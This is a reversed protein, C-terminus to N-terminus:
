RGGHNSVIIGQVGAKVALLADEPHQIGKLVIPGDWHKKLIELHDWTHARGSFVDQAWELYANLVDEEVEKGHKEKFIRRFV